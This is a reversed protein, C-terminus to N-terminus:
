DGTLPPIYSFVQAGEKNYETTAEYEWTTGTKFDTHSYISTGKEVEVMLGDAGGGYCEIKVVKAEEEPM